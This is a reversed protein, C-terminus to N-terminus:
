GKKKTTKVGTGMGLLGQGDDEGGSEDDYSQDSKLQDPDVNYAKPKLKKPATHMTDPLAHSVQHCHQVILPKFGQGEHYTEM